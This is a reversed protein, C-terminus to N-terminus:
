KGHHLWLYLFIHDHVHIGTQLPLATKNEKQKILIKRTYALDQLGPCPHTRDFHILAGTIEVGTSDLYENIFASSTAPLQIYCKRFCICFCHMM